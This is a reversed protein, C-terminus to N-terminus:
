QANNVPVAFCTKNLKNAMNQANSDQGAKGDCHGLSEILEICRVGVEVATLQFEQSQQFIENDLLLPDFFAIENLRREGDNMGLPNPAYESRSFNVLDQM